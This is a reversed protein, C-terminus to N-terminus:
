YIMLGMQLGWLRGSIVDKEGLIVWPMVSWRRTIEGRQLDLRSEGTCLRRPKRCAGEEAKWDGRGTGDWIENDKGDTAGDEANEWGCTAHSQGELDYLLDM